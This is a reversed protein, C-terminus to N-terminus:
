DWPNTQQTPAAGNTATGAKQQALFDEYSLSSTERKAPRFGEIDFFYGGRRGDNRKAGKRLGVLLNDVELSDVDYSFRGYQPPSERHVARYLKNLLTKDNQVNDASMAWFDLPALDGTLTVTIRRHPKEPGLVGKFKKAYQVSDGVTIKCPFYEVDGEAMDRTQFALRNGAEDLAVRQEPTLPTYGEPLQSGRAETEVVRAM